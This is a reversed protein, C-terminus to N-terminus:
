PGVVAFTFRTEARARRGTRLAPWPLRALVRRLCARATEPVEGVADTVQLHTLRGARAGLTLRLRVARYDDLRPAKPLQGLCSRLRPAVRQLAAAARRKDLNLEAPEATADKPSRPKAERPKALRPRPSAKAKVAAEAKAAAPRLEDPQYPRTRLHEVRRRMVVRWPSRPAAQYFRQLQELAAARRGTVLAALARYYHHDHAPLWIIDASALSKAHPDLQLARQMRREALRHRGQRDLAVALAFQVVRLGPNHALAQRYHSVAETLRGLAMFNDALNWHHVSAKVWRGPKVQQYEKVGEAIHGSLSLCLGLRFAVLSPRLKEELKRTRRMAKVCGPYDGALSRVTGLAFWLSAAYPRIRIARKILTESEAYKRKALLGQAQQVLKDARELRHVLVRDWLKLRPRRSERASATAKGRAHARPLAGPSEPLLAAGLTLALLWASLGIAVYWKM